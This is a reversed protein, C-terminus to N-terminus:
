HIGSSIQYASNSLDIGFERLHKIAEDVTYEVDGVFVAIIKGKKSRKVEVSDYLLQLHHYTKEEKSKKPFVM